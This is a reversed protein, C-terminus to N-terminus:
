IEILQAYRIYLFILSDYMLEDAEEFYKKQWDLLVQYIVACREWCHAAYNWATIMATGAAKAFPSPRPVCCLKISLTLSKFLGRISLTLLPGKVCLGVNEYEDNNGILISALSAFVCFISGSGFKKHCITVSATHLHSPCLTLYYKKKKIHSFNRVWHAIVQLLAARYIAHSLWACRMVSLNRLRVNVIAHSENAIILWFQTAQWHVVARHILHREM